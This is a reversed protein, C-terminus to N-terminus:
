GDYQRYKINAVADALLLYQMYKIDAVAYAFLLSVAACLAPEATHMHAQSGACAFHIQLERKCTSKAAVHTETKHVHATASLASEHTLPGRALSASVQLSVYM